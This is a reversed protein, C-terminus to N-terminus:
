VFINVGELYDENGKENIDIKWKEWLKILM